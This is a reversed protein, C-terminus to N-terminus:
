HITLSWIGRGHTAAYVTRGDPGLTLNNVSANPLGRGAGQWRTSRAKGEVAIFGGIDTGLVLHGHDIVLADAPADPLNTSIDRWTRGGNVTEFVHGTGASPIWRRSYGNYIAYAHLPNTPDVTVGAVYRNPLSATNVEHWTGGANTAIGSTFSPGPNGGGGVWAAYIVGNASSLATVANGAGTDYQKTWSCSSPNCATGWGASSTWVDEGGFVWHNINTQDSVYPASFRPGPDCDPRPSLGVTEQAVCGPSVGNNFSHGGDTTAYMTGDTYEGVARRADTPDVIVYFGDGGAPEVMAGTNTGIVSTGNDQLGGWTGLRNGPLTGTHADYYQLDHLTANTDTWGGYQDSDSLPRYYIGGDNGIVVKNATLMVAHQDPHTANPCSTGCALGYNWYPSATNWSTGADSSEFVEELGVYVHSPNAPDVALDQNYWAQVGVGYGSGVALASGSAALKAEDGIKTWPGAPNGSASLFVGQLVSEAGAALAAPSEIVAYLKSGDAAYALTTRGIDSADIDGTPTIKHFTAGDNTSVFFGNDDNGPTASRWGVVALIKGTHGPQQAVDTVQNLYPPNQNPGAPDLVEQWSGSHATLRWLGDDTAALATGRSTFTIRYVTHSALANGGVLQYHSGGDTSRYVGTGLYSDSNTNAEGTGVWLSKDGPNIALAGISLSPMTDFTPTWTGGQNASRWVGGGATGAFWVGTPAAVLATVRGGVISFGSGANSWFPDTYAAPNANFPTNTVERWAGGSTSLAAQQARAALLAAGSVTAAPLSREQAYAQLNAALDDDDGRDGTGDAPTITSARLRAVQASGPSSSRPGAAAVGQTLVLTAVAVATTLLYNTRRSMM